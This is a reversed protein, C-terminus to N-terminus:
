GEFAKSLGRQQRRDTRSFAISSGGFSHEATQLMPGFLAPM